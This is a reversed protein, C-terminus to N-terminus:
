EARLSKAPDIRAARAAPVAGAVIAVVLLLLVVAGLVLPDRPSVEYLSPALGAGAALAIVLGIGVGILTLGLAEKLVHGVIRNRTAGLAARVGIEHTRQAVNFALVSYLGVTAVLLALLGFVGFMTAGLRFSSLHPDILDQLPRVVAFRLEPDAALLERLVVPLLQEAEISGRVFLAIPSDQPYQAIPVFYQWVEGEVIEQRHSNGVVGVIQVCPSERSAIMFCEGLVDARGWIGRAMAENVVAVRPASSGDADTFGRGWRVPMGMSAFYGPTVGDFWPGPTPVRLSDMGPVFLNEISGGWFPIGNAASAHEVTPLGRLRELARQFIQTAQEPTRTRPEMEPWIVLVPEAEIGLDINELRQLSRVYVGAGVLLVVSLAGQAVLLAARTKSRRMTGERAGVKLDDSLDPRSTQLAPVIGSLLGTLLAIIGTFALVRPNVPPETWGIDSLLVGRVLDAGWIAVLLAVAGGLAALLVSETLLLGVLQKRSVGLALRIAIEKRRRLGRALLLNAVNACAILLVILSMGALVGSVVTEQPAKPGRAQLIPAAVVRVDADYAGRDIQERRGTRHLHTAEAEAASLDADARLRAIVHIWYANRSNWLKEPNGSFATAHHLPLWLDVPELDIGSFRMPTVGIVTYMGQGIELTRGLVDPDGGMQRQWFGHSVVAVGPVGVQDENETFFRGLAPKVGLLTFYSASVFATPARLAGQGRGVTMETTWLAAVSEFSQGGSWDEFDPYSLSAQTGPRETIPNLGQAYLRRVRGADEVHAPSSLLLRDVIGFMTANIGIGLALTGVVAVVLGPSRRIGRFAAEVTQRVISVAAVGASM